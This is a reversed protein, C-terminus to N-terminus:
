GVGFNKYRTIKPFINVQIKYEIRQNAEEDVKQTETVSLKMKDGYEITPTVM